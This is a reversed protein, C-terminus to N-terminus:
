KGAGKGGLPRTDDGGDAKVEKLARLLAHEVHAPPVCSSADELIKILRDLFAANGVVVVGGSVGTHAKFKPAAM